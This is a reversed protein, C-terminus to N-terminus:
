SVALETIGGHVLELARVAALQHLTDPDRPNLDAARKLMDGARNYAKLTKLILGARFHAEALEHDLEIARQFSDLARKYQRRDDYVRGLELAIRPDADSLSQATLAENLARDLQGAHRNLSALNLRYDPNRPALSAAKEAAELAGASDSQAQCVRSLEAWAQDDDPNSEVLARLSDIAEDIRGARTLARSRSLLLMRPAESKAIAHDYATLAQDVDGAASALDGALALVEPDEPAIRSAQASLERAQTLSGTLLVAKAAGVLCQPDSPALIAAREFWQCAQEADGSELAIEGAEKWVPAVSPMLRVAAAYAEHAGPLQGTRRLTRALELQLEGDKPSLEVAQQLHALASDFNEEQLYVKALLAHWRPQGPCATVAANLAQIAAATDGQALWAKGNLYEGIPALVPNVSAAAFAQGALDYRGLAQHALGILLPGWPSQSTPSNAASLTRLADAPRDDNLQHIALGEITEPSDSGALQGEAALWEETTASPQHLKLRLAIREATEKDLIASLRELDAQIAQCQTRDALGQAQFDLNAATDFLQTADIARLRLQLLASVLKPDLTKDAWATLTEIALPWALHASAACALWCADEASEPRQAAAAKLASQSGMLDGTKLMALAQLSFVGASGSDNAMARNLASLSEQSRGLLWLCEGLAAFEESGATPSLVAQELHPLALHPQHWALEAKGYALSLRYNAPDLALARAYAQRAKDMEGQAGLAQALCAVIDANDPALESGRAWASIAQDIQGLHWRAQGAKQYAEVPNPDIEALQEWATAAAQINGAEQSAQAFAAVVALNRPNHQQAYRILRLSRDSEGRGKVEQAALLLLQPQRRGIALAQALAARAAPRDSALSAIRSLELHAFPDAQKLGALARAASLALDYRAANEGAHMLQLQAEEDQPSQLAALEATEAAQDALGASQYAASLAALIAASEPFESRASELQSVALAPDGAKSAARSWGLVAAEALDRDAGAHQRAVLFADMADAPKGCIALAEGLWRMAQPQSKTRTGAQQLHDCAMAALARDALKAAAKAQIRGVDFHSDPDLQSPVFSISKAAAAPNGSFELAKALALRIEFNAPQDQYAQELVSIADEHQGLALLIQGETVKAGAFRPELASARQAVQLADKLQGQELLAAALAVHLPASGPATQCATKLTRLTAAQDGALRFAQSLALWASVSDPSASTARELASFAARQHGAQFLVKGHLTLVESNDPDSLLLPELAKGAAELDGTELACAALEIRGDGTANVIARRHNLAKSHKGSSEYCEALLRRAEHPVPSLLTAIAAHESALAADGAALLAKALDLHTEPNSPSWAVRIQRLQLARSIDGTTDLDRALHDLWFPSLPRSLLWADSLESLSEGAKRKDGQALYCAAGAIASFPSAKAEPLATLGRAPDGAECAAIALRAQRDPSPSSKLAQQCAELALIPQATQLALEAIGDAASARLDTAAEWAQDYYAHANDLDGSAHSVAGRALFVSISVEQNVEDAPKFHRQYAQALRAFDPQRLTSLQAPTLPQIRDALWRGAEDDPKFAVLCTFAIWALSPSDQGLLSPILAEVAAPDPAAGMLASRWALPARAASALWEPRGLWDGTDAALRQAIVAIEPAPHPWRPVRPWLRAPGLQRSIAASPLLQALLEPASVTEPASCSELYPVLSTSQAPDFLEPIRLWDALAAAATSETEFNQVFSVLSGATTM